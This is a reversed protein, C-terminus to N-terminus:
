EPENMFWTVRSPAKRRGSGRGDREVSKPYRCYNNYHKSINDRLDRLLALFSSEVAATTTTTTAAAAAATASARRTKMRASM